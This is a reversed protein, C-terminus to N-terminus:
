ALAPVRAMEFRFAHYDDGYSVHVRPLRRARGARRPALGHMFSFSV